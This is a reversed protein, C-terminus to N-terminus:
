VDALDSRYYAEHARSLVFLTQEQPILPAIRDRTHTLLSKDGFLPCFQKPRADGTILRTLQQLRTGDGGALVVAWRHTNNLNSHTLLDASKEIIYFCRNMQM